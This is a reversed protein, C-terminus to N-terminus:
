YRRSLGRFLLMGVVTVSGSVRAWWPLLFVLGRLLFELGASFTVCVGFQCDGGHVGAAFIVM